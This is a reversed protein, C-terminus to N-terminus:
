VYNETDGVNFFINYVYVNILIKRTSGDPLKLKLNGHCM